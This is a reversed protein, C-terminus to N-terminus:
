GSGARLPVEEADPPVVAAPDLKDYYCPNLVQLRIAAHPFRELLPIGAGYLRRETEPDAEETLLWSGVEEGDFAVWLRRALPEDGLLRALERGVDHALATGDILSIM